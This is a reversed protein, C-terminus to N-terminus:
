RRWFGRASRRPQEPARQCRCQQVPPVSRMVDDVHQGCGDWTTKGCDPCRVPYCM